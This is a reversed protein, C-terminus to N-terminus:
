QKHEGAPVIELPPTASPKFGDKAMAEKALEIMGYCLVKNTLPGAFAMKGTVDDFMIELKHKM